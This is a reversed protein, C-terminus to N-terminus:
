MDPWIKNSKIANNYQSLLQLNGEWHLGCVLKSRIPVIHDVQMQQYEAEKYIDAMSERDAWNPTCLKKKARRDACKLRFLHKNDFVYQRRYEKTKEKNALRYAKSYENRISRTREKSAQYYTKKGEKIKDPNENRYTKQRSKCLDLNAARYANVSAKVKEPNAERWAKNISLMKGRNKAYYARRKARSLDNVM